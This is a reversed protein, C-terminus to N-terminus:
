AEEDIGEPHTRLLYGHEAKSLDEPTFEPFAGRLEASLNSFASMDGSKLELESIEAHRTEGDVDAVIKSRDLAM